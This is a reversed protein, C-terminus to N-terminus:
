EGLQSRLTNIIEIAEELEKRTEDLKSQMELEQEALRRGIMQAIETWQRATFGDSM